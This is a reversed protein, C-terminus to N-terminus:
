QRLSNPEEPQDDTILFHALERLGQRIMAEWASAKMYYFQDPPLIVSNGIPRGNMTGTIRVRYDKIPGQYSLELTPLGQHVQYCEILWGKSHNTQKILKGELGQNLLRMQYATLNM